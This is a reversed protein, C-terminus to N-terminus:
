STGDDDSKDEVSPRLCPRFSVLDGNNDEAVVVVPATTEDTTTTPTQVDEEEDTADGGAFIATRSTSSSPFEASFTWSNSESSDPDIAKSLEPYNPLLYRLKSTSTSTTESDEDDEDVDLPPTPSTSPLDYAEDTTLARLDAVAVKETSGDEPSARRINVDDISAASREETTLEIDAIDIGAADSDTSSSSAKSRIPSDQDDPICISIVPLASSSEGNADDRFYFTFNAPLSSMKVIPRHLEMKADMVLKNKAQLLEREEQEMEEQLEAEMDLDDDMQKHSEELHKMLVAVVVNVLVFQAMLVFVVFYLPAIIASVCCNRVCDSRADCEDRLTDKMIGNWNDGTAVRFLTLFAMGFNHFHAHEGLGQCPHSEDCELRGFLEVGLAAFIFFLLFFLLGLNGVQPLAQMVTDLLARIGKAMKLLKLVRAIRLVRMVRIITPNIPILDSKMEELVIGMISLIVILIDLQNWKDTLYRPIGLAVVKMSLELLFVATFFYNFIKLAYELELPMRYFEMAMTVVNLGIVAAIALDFYKSTVINHTFLRPKSYNAYYPPERMKRRKKELKRARKAARMAREEREQEERCRHFNEVVVGVFMNLVFFAVLLLFSIFYLLRWENYNEVPQIGEGVADLGSYMINVWGDKSSLVFLAMLAQGLHDFNYKRNTWMMGRELCDEKTRVGKVDPGECFYFSGKFLQVGLIGFIIFFTCCILVINGIPRLSSMLTQVVLKLGPARNIVRLPRLSRLLRFVRLIGFIRPSGDAVFTLFFDVLSITVLVGDMKNWGSKFYAKDGYWLGKAIVQVCLSVHWITDSFRAEDNTRTKLFGIATRLLLVLRHLSDYSLSSESRRKKELKRARKAARMAREEREQEERCRHFNEVVVGVFMNLVFFAVLLLFSIFYLLRWENYNEVPQIGEGVADLGSYMINVWGDKSSLVFLAMLAQGLHDFNYKRNTWMMGRELCDEKTRVGKVDPGECFYFSGKFLQVGLIGFIIFFTCCILVINGIPRLSSMLTQVVLKLGPARNIVRLPRLSRLLRFVRLIGFIRPSGDAVFTLFFDVLSITVLVGDMKNWGSKFYAKDGYWLGKAIVKVLMEFAFVVTFTYNAAILLERELSKPPINPREMALTICNLAIFVLVTYDFWRGDTLRNCYIRMKSEPPFIFLSHNDRNEFCWRWWQPEFFWCLLYVVRGLAACELTSTAKIGIM